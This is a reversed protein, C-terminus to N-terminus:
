TLAIMEEAMAQDDIKVHRALYIARRILDAPRAMSIDGPVDQGDTCYAVPLQKEAVLSLAEGLSFTEDIKTLVCSSLSDTKYSHYTSTIVELQNCVPVVLVTQIRHSLENLVETQRKLRPDQRNLGATDILVLSKHRLSHLVRDLSHNKDVVKVPINLIRGYTRLQEHAAIRATDTTVLAIDEAGHELVYRAALKGITTSKGAGTPGVFAFVGGEEILDHDLTPLLGSLNKMLSNWSVKDSRDTGQADAAANLQLQKLMSEAVSATIGMRKLRRWLSAKQPEYHNIQGWAMSSLQQELLDRMSQLEHRMESLEPNGSVGAGRNDNAAAVSAAQVTQVQERVSQEVAGPGAKETSGENTDGGQSHATTQPQNGTRGESGFAQHRSLEKVMATARDRAQDQMQQLGDALKNVPQLKRANLRENELLSDSSHQQFPNDSVSQMLPQAALEPRTDPEIATLLEVGGPVQKNSLIVADPGIDERVMKLALRMNEAVFRKVQM